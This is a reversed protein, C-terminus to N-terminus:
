KAGAENFYIKLNKTDRGSAVIDLRKDGDIDALVMDECAMTNDDVARKQWEKGDADLPIYARIGVKGDQDKERWGVLVQDYGGGVLDGCAVAHGGKLSADLERASWLGDGGNKPPTYSVVRNGHFPEITAFFRKGGPLRGARVESAGAFSPAEDSSKALARKGWKGASQNLLFVGERSALLIEQEPDDDWQVLDFNHTMHLADDLVETAWPAKPDSPM